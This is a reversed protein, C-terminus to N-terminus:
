RRITGSYSCKSQGILEPAVASFEWRQPTPVLKFAPPNGLTLQDASIPATGSVTSFGCAYPYGGMGMGRVMPGQLTYRLM